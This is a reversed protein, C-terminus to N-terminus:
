PLMGTKGFAALVEIFDRWKKEWKGKSLPRPRTQKLLIQM